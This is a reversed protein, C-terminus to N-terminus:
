LYFYAFGVAIVGIVVYCIMLPILLSPSSDDEVPAMLADGEACRKVYDDWLVNALNYLHSSDRPTVKKKLWRSVTSGHVGITEGLEKYTLNLKKKLLIIETVNRSM